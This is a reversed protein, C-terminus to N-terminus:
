PKGYHQTKKSNKYYRWSCMDSVTIPRPVATKLAKYHTSARTLFDVATRYEGLAENRIKEDESHCHQLYVTAAVGSRLLNEHPFMCVCYGMFPSMLEYGCADADRIFRVIWRSHVLRMDSSRQLFAGPIKKWIHQLRLTPFVPHHLLCHATHYIFQMILWPGAYYRAEDGIVRQRLTEPTYRHQKPFNSEFQLLAAEIAAFDSGPHWPQTSRQRTKGQIVYQVVRGWVALIRVLYAVIGLDESSDAEEDNELPILPATKKFMGKAFSEEDMPLQVEVDEDRISQVLSRGTGAVRDLMYMAWFVRRHEEQVIPSLQDSPEALLGVAEALRIGIGLTVFARHPRGSHIDVFTCLVIAQLLPLTVVGERVLTTIISNAAALYQEM